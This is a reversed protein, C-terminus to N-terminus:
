LESSNLPVQCSYFSLYSHGCLVNFINVHLHNKALHNIQANLFFFFGYVQWLLLM